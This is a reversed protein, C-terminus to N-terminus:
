VQDAWYILMIGDAQLSSKRLDYLALALYHLISTKSSLPHCFDCLSQSEEVLAPRMSRWFLALRPVALDELGVWRVKKSAYVM